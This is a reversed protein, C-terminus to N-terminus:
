ALVPAPVHQVSPVQRHLGGYVFEPSAYEGHSAQRSPLTMHPLPCGPSGLGAQVYPAHTVGVASDNEAFGNSVGQHRAGM